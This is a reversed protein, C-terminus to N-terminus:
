EDAQEKILELAERARRQLWTAFRTQFSEKSENEIGILFEPPVMGHAIDEAARRLLALESELSRAEAIWDKIDRFPYRIGPSDYEAVMRESLKESM